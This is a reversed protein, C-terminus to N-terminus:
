RVFLTSTRAGDDALASRAFARYSSRGGEITLDEVTVSAEPNTLPEHDDGILTFRVDRLGSVLKHAPVEVTGAGGELPLEISFGPESERFSVGLYAVRGHGGLCETRYRVPFPSSVSTGPGPAVIQLVPQCSPSQSGGHEDAPEDAPEGVCAASVVLVVTIARRM